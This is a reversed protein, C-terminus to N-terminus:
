PRDDGFQQRLRRVARQHLARVAGESRGLDAAIEAMTRREQYLLVVVRREAEPLTDILERLAERVEERVLRSLAPTSTAATPEGAASGGQRGALEERHDRVYRMLCFQMSRLLWALVQRAPRGSLEGFRRVAISLTEQLLDSSALVPRLRAGILRRARARLAPEFRALEDAQSPGLHHIMVREPPRIAFVHPITRAPEKPNM